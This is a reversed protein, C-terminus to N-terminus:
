EVMGINLLADVFDTDNDIYIIFYDMWYQHPYVGYLDDDNVYIIPFM